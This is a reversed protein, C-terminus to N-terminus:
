PVCRRKLLAPQQPNDAVVETKAAIKGGVIPVDKLGDIGSAPDIVRGSARCLDFTISISM